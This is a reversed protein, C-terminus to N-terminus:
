MTDATIATITARSKYKTTRLCGTGLSYQGAESSKPNVITPAFPFVDHGDPKEPLTVAEQRASPVNPAISVLPHTRVEDEALVPDPDPDPTADIEPVPDAAKTPDPDPVATEAVPVPVPVPATRGAAIFVTSPQSVSTLDSVQSPDAVM